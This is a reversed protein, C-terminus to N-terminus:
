KPVSKRDPSSPYRTRRSPGIRSRKRPERRHLDDFLVIPQQVVLEQTEVVCGLTQVHTSDHPAAIVIPAQEQCTGSHEAPGRSGGWAIKETSPRTSGSRRLPGTLQEVHDPAIQFPFANPMRGGVTLPRQFDHDHGRRRSGEMTPSRRTGDALRRRSGIGYGACWSGEKGLSAKGTLSVHHVIIGSM